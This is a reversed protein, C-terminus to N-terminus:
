KKFDTKPNAECAPFKPFTPPCLPVFFRTYAPVPPRYAIKTYLNTLYVVLFLTLLFLFLLLLLLLANLYFRHANYHILHTRFARIKPTTLILLQCLPPHLHYVHQLFLFFSSMARTVLQALDGKAEMKVKM